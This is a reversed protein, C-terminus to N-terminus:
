RPLPLSCTTTQRRGAIIRYARRGIPAVGPLYLFPLAPWGLPVVAALARLADFGSRIRGSGTIVHMEAVCADRRLAPYDRALSDWDAAVDALSVKKLWDARSLLSVSRSCAGCGGDYVVLCSRTVSGDYRLRAPQALSKGHRSM